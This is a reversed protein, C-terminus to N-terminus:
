NTFAINWAELSNHVGVREIPHKMWRLYPQLYTSRNVQLPFTRLNCQTISM